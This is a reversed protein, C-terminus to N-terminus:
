FALNKVKVGNRALARWLGFWQKKRLTSAPFEFKRYDKKFVVLTIPWRRDEEIFVEKIDEFAIIKKKWLFNHNKIVLFDKSILFYNMFFSLISFIYLAIFIFFLIIWSPADEVDVFLLSSFLFVMFWLAIGRWTLFQIGKYKVTEAIKVEASRIERLRYPEFNKKLLIKQELCQKIEIINSYFSDFLVLTQCDKLQICVGNMPFTLFFNMNVKGILEINCIDSFEIRNNNYLLHDDFIKLKIAWKIYLRLLGIWMLVFFIVAMVKFYNHIEKDSIKVVDFVELMLATSVSLIFLSLIVLQLYFKIPHLKSELIPM